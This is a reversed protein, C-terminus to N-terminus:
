LDLEAKNSCAVAFTRLVLALMGDDNVILQYGVTRLGNSTYCDYLGSYNFQVDRIVLSQIHNTTINVSLHRRDELVRRNWYVYDVSGDTDNDYTWTSDASANCPLSVTDGESVELHSYNM